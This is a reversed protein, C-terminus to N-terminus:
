HNEEKDKTNNLRDAAEGFEDVQEHDTDKRCRYCWTTKIHGPGTRHIAKAARTEGGCLPCRFLRDQIRRPDKNKM